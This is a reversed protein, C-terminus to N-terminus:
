LSLTQHFDPYFEPYIRRSNRISKPQLVDGPRTAQAQLLLLQINFSLVVEQDRQNEKLIASTEEASIISEFKM